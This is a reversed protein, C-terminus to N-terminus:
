SLFNAQGISNHGPQYYALLLLCFVQLIQPGTGHEAMRLISYHLLLRNYKNIYKTVEQFYRIINDKM